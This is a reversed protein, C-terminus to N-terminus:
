PLATAPSAPPSMHAERWASGLANAEQVVLNRRAEFHNLALSFTFGLLLALLGLM